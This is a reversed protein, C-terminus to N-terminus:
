KSVKKGTPERQSVAKEDDVKVKAVSQKVLLSLSRVKESVDIPLKGDVRNLSVRRQLDKYTELSSVYDKQHLEQVQALRLYSIALRSDVALARKHFSYAEEYNQNKFHLEGMGFLAFSNQSNQSLVQEFHFKSKKPEDLTFYVQALLLHAESISPNRKAAEKLDELALDKQDSNWYLRGRQFLAIGDEPAKKLALNIMWFARPLDKNYEAAVSLYYAGWHSEPEVKALQNAVRDVQFFNKARVCQGAQTVLAKWNMKLYDNNVTCAKASVPTSTKGEWSASYPSPGKKVGPGSACSVLLFSLIAGILIKM